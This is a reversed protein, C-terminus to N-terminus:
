PLLLSTGPPILTRIGRLDNLEAIAKAYETRDTDAYRNAVRQATDGARASHRGGGGGDGHGHGDGNGHGNGDGHHHKKKRKHFTLDDGPVYQMLNLVLDQRLLKQADPGGADGRIVDDGYEISEVVFRRGSFPIPGLVQFTPPRNDGDPTRVLKHLQNLDHAVSKGEDVGDLFLPLTTKRPQGGVWETMAVNGPRDITTWGSTEDSIKSAGDGLKVRLNFDRGLLRVHKGQPKRDSAM